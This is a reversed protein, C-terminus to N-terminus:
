GGRQIIQAAAVVAQGLAVGGDNPPVLRHVLVEFGAADLQFLTRQLLAVNQFVGGSLAVTNIGSQARLVKSYEVILNAVANHFRTAILAPSLNMLADAVVAQLLPRWDFYPHTKTPLVFHYSTNDNHKVLTELEIAAQAEYTVTQRVGALAAIVDFLRGMSSTSVCNLKVELQRQLLDRERRTTAAVPALREDWEIGAAWLAALATRYPRRIATDGGPLPFYYLHAAREFHSYEAVLVEGGWIAGDTGYGTGDFCFGLVPTKEPVGHEAMLAAIHAHHHQVKIIQPPNEERLASSEAWFTSFYGPHMDRAIVEPEIRFFRQM